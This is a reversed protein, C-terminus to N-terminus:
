TCPSGTRKSWASGACATRPTRSSTFAPSKTRSLRAFKTTIGPLIPINRQAWPKHLITLIEIPPFFDECFPGREQDTWAFASNQLCMFHHVLKSEEPLLFDGTHVQNFQDHREETYHSCPTFNPPILSLALLEKLPDGKINCIICFRSPLETEIPRIKHAIPKYRKGAFVALPTCTSLSFIHVTNQRPMLGTCPTDHHSESFYATLTPTDETCLSLYAAALDKCMANTLLQACAEINVQQNSSDYELTVALEGQNNAL